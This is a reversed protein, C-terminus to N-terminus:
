QVNYHWSKTLSIITTLGQVTEYIVVNYQIIILIFRSKIKLYKMKVIHSGSVLTNVGFKINNSAHDKYWCCAYGEEM